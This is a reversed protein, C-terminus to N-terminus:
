KFVIIRHLTDSVYIDILDAIQASNYAGMLVDFNDTENKIWTSMNDALM